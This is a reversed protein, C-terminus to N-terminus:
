SLIGQWSSGCERTAVYILTLSISYEPVQSITHAYRCATSSGELPDIIKSLDWNILLSSPEQGDLIMINIPSLDRHLVGAKCAAQHATFHTLIHQMFIQCFKGLLSGYLASILERSSKFKKLDRGITDLVLCYHQHPVLQLAPSHQWYKEAFNHTCTIHYITNGVDGSLFCNPINPVSYHHLREYIM